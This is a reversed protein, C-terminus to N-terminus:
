GLDVAHLSCSFPEVFCAHKPDVHDPVVHVLANEPYLLYSTMAGQTVQIFYLMLDCECIIKMLCGRLLCFTHFIECKPPLFPLIRLKECVCFIGFHTEPWKSDNLVCKIKPSFLPTHRSKLM